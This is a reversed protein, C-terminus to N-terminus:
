NQVTVQASGGGDCTLNYTGAKAVSVIAFDYADLLYNKTGIGIKHSNDDRNDIMFKTNRKISLTGPNGSCNAFQIRGGSKQYIALATVYDQTPNVVVTAGTKVVTAGPIIEASFATDDSTDAAPPTVAVNTSSKAACGAGITILPITIATLLFRKNM